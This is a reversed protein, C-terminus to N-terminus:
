LSFGLPSINCSLWNTFDPVLKNTDSCLLFILGACLHFSLIQNINKPFQEVFMSYCSPISVRTQPLQLHLTPQWECAKKWLGRSPACSFISVLYSILFFRLLTLRLSPFLYLNSFTPFSSGAIKGRLFLVKLSSPSPGWVSHDWLAASSAQLQSYLLSSHSVVRPESWQDGVEQHFVPDHFCGVESVWIFVPM